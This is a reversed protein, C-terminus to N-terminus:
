AEKQDTRPCFEAIWSTGWKAIMSVIGMILAIVSMVGGKRKVAPKQPAPNINNSMNTM